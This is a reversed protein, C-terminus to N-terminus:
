QRLSSVMKCRDKKMKSHAIFHSLNHNAKKTRQARFSPTVDVGHGIKDNKSTCLGGPARSTGYDLSDHRVRNVPVCSSPEEPSLRSEAGYPYM